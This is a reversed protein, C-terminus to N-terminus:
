LSKKVERFPQYATIVRTTHGEKGVIKFSVWLGLKKKDVDMIDVM